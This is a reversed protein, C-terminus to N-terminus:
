RGQNQYRSPGGPRQLYHTIWKKHLQDNEIRKGKENEQERYMNM